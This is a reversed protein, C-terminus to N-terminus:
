VVEVIIRTATGHPGDADGGSNDKDELASCVIANPFINAGSQNTYAQLLGDGASELFAGKAVNQGSALLAYLEDGQRAVVYQVRDGAAYNDTIEDGVFDEEVAFRPAANAGATGHRQLTDASTFEVVDGPTIVSAALEEKRIPDGKLIINQIRAAM